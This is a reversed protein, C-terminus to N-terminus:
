PGIYYGPHCKCILGENISNLPCTVCYGNLVFYNLPCQQCGSSTLGFTPLCQCQSITSNYLSNIGCVYLCSNTTLQYVSNSPCKSCTNSINYFNPLCQCTNNPSYQQSNAPCPTPQCANNILSYNPLCACNLGNNFSYIPCTISQDNKDTSNDKDTININKSDNNLSSNNQNINIPNSIRKKPIIDCNKNNINYYYGVV